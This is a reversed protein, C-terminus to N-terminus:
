FKHVADVLMATQLKRFDTTNKVLTMLQKDTKAEQMLDFMKDFIKAQDDSSKTKNYKYYRKTLENLADVYGNYTVYFPVQRIADTKVKDTPSEYRHIADIM